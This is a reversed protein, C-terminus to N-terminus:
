SRTTADPSRAASAPRSCARGPPPSCRKPPERAHRGVRRRARRRDRVRRLITRGEWNGDDTVDYAAEFVASEPGLVERVEAASWTYTAGEEGETDADLSSAFAGDAPNRLERAM